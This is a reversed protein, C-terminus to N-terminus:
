KGQFSAKRGELFALMGERQDETSFLYGFKEKEMMLGTHIDVDYSLQILEKATRLAIPPKRALRRALKATEAELDELPVLRNIVGLELAKKANFIEGLFILEKAKGEGVLRTLRLTGSGGPIIGLNIEPLGFVANDAAIRIDCALAMECGGGLAYGSISAISPKGIAMLKNMSIQVQFIYEHADRPSYDVFSKIDAGAAFADKNGKVVLVRVDDDKVIDDMARSLDLLVDEDIANLVEPRNLQVTAIGSDKTYIITKFEM